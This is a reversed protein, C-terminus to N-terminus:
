YGRRLMETLEPMTRTAQLLTEYSLRLQPMLEFKDSVKNELIESDCYDKLQPPIATNTHVEHRSDGSGRYEYGFVRETMNLWYSVPLPMGKLQWAFQRKAFDMDFGSSRTAMAAAYESMLGARTLKELVPDIASVKALIGALEGLLIWARWLINARHSVYEAAAEAIVRFLDTVGDGNSLTAYKYMLKGHEAWFDSDRDHDLFMYSHTFEHYVTYVSNPDALPRVPTSLLGNWFQVGLYMDKGTESTEAMVVNARDVHVECDKLARRIYKVPLGLKAASDLFVSVNNM